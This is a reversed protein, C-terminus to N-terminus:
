LFRTAKILKIACRPCGEANEINKYAQELDTTTTSLKFTGNDHTLKFTFKKM